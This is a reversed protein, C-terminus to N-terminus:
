DKEMAPIYDAIEPWDAWNKLFRRSDKKYFRNSKGLLPIVKTSDLDILQPGDNTILINSEKLDGHVINCKRLRELLHCVERINEKQKAPDIKDLYEKLKNGEVYRTIIYSNTIVGCKRIELFAVPEPTNIHFMRLRHGQIWSHRARSGKLSTRLAHLLGKYNYRKVIVKEGNYEFSSVFCTNGKKFVNGEEMRQDINRVLEEFGNDDTFAKDVVFRIGGSKRSCHRSNNRLYKKLTRRVSKVKHRHIKRELIDIDRTDFPWSRQDCYHQWLQEKENRGQDPFQTLLIGLQSLAKFKSLGGRRFKIDAVDIVFIGRETKIFNGLHLDKQYIGKSHMSSLLSLLSFLNEDASNPASMDPLKDALSIGNELNEMVFVYFGEECAGSYYLSPVPMNLDALRQLNRVEKNFRSRGVRDGSFVKIIANVSKGDGGYSGDCTLRKGPLLRLVHSCTIAINSGDASGATLQRPLGSAMETFFDKGV